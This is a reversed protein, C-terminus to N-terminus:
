QGGEIFTQEKKSVPKGIRKTQGLVMKFNLYQGPAALGTKTLFM